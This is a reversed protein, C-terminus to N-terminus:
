TSGARRYVHYTCAPVMGISEYLSIAPQNDPETELALTLLQARACHDLLTALLTRQIGQRRYEPHTSVDWIVGSQNLTMVGAAAVIQGNLRAVLMDLRSDDLVDVACAALGDAVEQAYLAGHVATQYARYQRGAARAPLIQLDDRVSPPRIVRDMVMVLNEEAEYGHASLVSQDDADWQQQHAPILRHCDLSLSRYHDTIEQLLPRLDEPGAATIGAAFNADYIRPREPCVFLQAGSLDTTECHTLALETEATKVLRTLRDPSRDPHTNDIVPLEM